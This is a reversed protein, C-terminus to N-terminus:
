QIVEQSQDEEKGSYEILESPLFKLLTAELLAGNIPKALYNQFGNSQYIEEAGSMANATLAIVPVNQCLGEQQKRLRNLTEVGDMEPMMHDMFIVNYFRTKTKQLCEAGSIATDVQVKTGRLLKKAVTLNMENDDVILVKADPAEFSQHYRERNAIKKKIMLDLAGIPAEDMIQQEVIVTFTSGKTYIS